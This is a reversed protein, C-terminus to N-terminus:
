MCSGARGPSWQSLAGDAADEEVECDAVAAGGVRASPRLLNASGTEFDSDSDIAVVEAPVDSAVQAVSESQVPGSGQTAAGRDILGGPTITAQVAGGGPRRQLAGMGARRRGAALRKGKALADMLAGAKRKAGRGAAKGEVSAGSRALKTKTTTDAATSETQSNFLSTITHTGGAARLQARRTAQEKTVRMHCITCLTRFNTIDCLGGGLHVAKIHDAQWANGASMGAGVKVAGHSGLM